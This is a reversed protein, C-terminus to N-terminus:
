EPIASLIQLDMILGINIFSKISNAFPLVLLLFENWADKFSWGRAMRYFAIAIGTENSGRNDHILVPHKSEDLLLDIIPIFDSVNKQKYPLLPFNYYDVGL